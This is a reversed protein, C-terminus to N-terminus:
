SKMTYRGVDTKTLRKRKTLVPGIAEISDPPFIMEKKQPFHSNPPM